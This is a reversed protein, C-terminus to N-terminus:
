LGAKEQIKRGKNWGRNGGNHCRSGRGKWDWKEKTHGVGFRRGLLLRCSEAVNLLSQVLM